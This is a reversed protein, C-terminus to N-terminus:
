NVPEVIIKADARGAEKNRNNKEVIANSVHELCSMTGFPRKGETYVLFATGNSCPEIDCM